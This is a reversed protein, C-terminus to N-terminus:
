RLGHRLVAIGTHLLQSGTTLLVPESGGGTQAPLRAPRHARGEVGHGARREPVRESQVCRGCVPRGEGDPQPM